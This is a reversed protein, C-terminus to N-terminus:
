EGVKLNKMLQEGDSKNPSKLKYARKLVQKASQFDANKVFLVSKALLTECTKEHKDQIRKAVELAANFQAQAMVDDDKRISYSFGSAILCQHHLEFLENSRCVKIATEYYNIAEDFHKTNEKTVGLNLYLRAQM